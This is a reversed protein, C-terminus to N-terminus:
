QKVLARLQRAQTDSLVLNCGTTLGQLELHRGITTHTEHNYTSVNCVTGIVGWPYIANEIEYTSGIPLSKLFKRKDESDVVNVLHNRLRCVSIEWNM